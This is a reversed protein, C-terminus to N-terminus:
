NRHSGICILPSRDAEATYTASRGRHPFHVTTSTELQLCLLDASSVSPMPRQQDEGRVAQSGPSDSRDKVRQGHDPHLIATRLQRSCHGKTNYIIGAQILATEQQCRRVSFDIMRHLFVRDVWVVKCTHSLKGILSLLEQKKCAKRGWWM